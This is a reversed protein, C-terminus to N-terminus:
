QKQCLEILMGTSYKPHIFTILKNGSGLKPKQYILPINLDNLYEILYKLNDVELAIHHLSNGNKDIFKNVIDNDDSPQVLELSTNRGNTFIILVDVKEDEVHEIKDNEM